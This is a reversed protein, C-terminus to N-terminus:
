LRPREHLGPVRFGIARPDHRLCAFLLTFGKAISKAQRGGAPGSQWAHLSSAPGAYATWNTQRRKGWADFSYRVMVVGTSSTMVDTSGFHDKLLYRTESSQSTATDTEIVTAVGTICATRKIVGTAETVVEFAGGALYHTTSTDTENIDIRGHAAIRRKLLAAAPLEFLM